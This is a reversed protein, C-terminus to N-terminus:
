KNTGSETEDARAAHRLTTLCPPCLREDDNVLAGAGCQLTIHNQRPHLLGHLTSRIHRWMPSLQKNQYPRHLREDSHTKTHKHETNCAQFCRCGDAPTLHCIGHRLSACAIKIAYTPTLWPTHNRLGHGFAYKRARPYKSDAMSKLVSHETKSRLRYCEPAHLNDVNPLRHIRLRSLQTFQPPRTPVWYNQTLLM